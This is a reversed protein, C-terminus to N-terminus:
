YRARLEACDLAFVRVHCLHGLGDDMLEMSGRRMGWNFREAKTVRLALNQIELESDDYGLWASARWYTAM